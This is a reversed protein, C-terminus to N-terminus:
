VPVCLLWFGHGAEDEIRASFAETARFAPLNELAVLRDDIMDLLEDPDQSKTAFHDLALGTADYLTVIFGESM